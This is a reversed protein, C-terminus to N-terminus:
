QHAGGSGDGHWTPWDGGETREFQVGSPAGNESTAPRSRRRAREQSLYSLFIVSAILMSGCIVGAGILMITWIDPWSNSIQM